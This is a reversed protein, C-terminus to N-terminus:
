MGLRDRRVLLLRSCSGWFLPPWRGCANGRGVEGGDGRGDCVGGGPLPAGGGLYMSVRCAPRIRGSAEGEGPPLTHSPLPPNLPHPGPRAAACLIAEMSSRVVWM